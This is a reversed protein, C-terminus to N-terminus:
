RSGAPAVYGVRRALEDAALFGTHRSGDRFVWTPYSNVVAATCESAPPAKQGGPSCEVYPLRKQSATFVDKQRKCV